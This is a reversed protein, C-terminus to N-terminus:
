AKEGKLIFQSTLYVVIVSFVTTLVAFISAKFGLIQFKMLLNKDIGISAGMVFLLLVVGLHQLKSNILKMKDTMKVSGGIFIGAFLFILIKWM